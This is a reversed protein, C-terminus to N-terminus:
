GSASIAKLDARTEQYTTDYALARPDPTIGGRLLDAESVIGVLREDEDVVPVATIDHRDLVRMADRIPMDPEVTIVPSTMIERALM